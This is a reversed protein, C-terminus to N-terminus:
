RHKGYKKHGNGHKHHHKKYKNHGPAYDRASGGYYKKAHGPPMSRRGHHPHTSVVCSTLFMFVMVVGFVKM